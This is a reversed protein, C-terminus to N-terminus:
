QRPKDPVASDIGTSTSVIAPKTTDLRKKYKQAIWGSEPLNQVKLALHIISGFTPAPLLVEHYRPTIFM